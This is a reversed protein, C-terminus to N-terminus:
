KGGPRRRGFVVSSPQRELSSALNKLSRAAGNIEDLARALQDGLPSDAELVGNVSSLTTQAGTLTAQATELTARASDVTGKLSDALPGVRGGVDQVVQQVDGVLRRAESSTSQADAALANVQDLTKQATGLLPGIQGQVTRVLAQADAVAGRVSRLTDTIEPSRALQNVGDIAEVAHTALAEIPLKDLRDALRKAQEAFQELETPVTPMEPVSPDLGTLVVPTDPFFDLAVYLQGTVLSQSRLQARMGKAVLHQIAHQIDEQSALRPAGLGQREIRMLVGIRKQDYYLQIDSVTGVPVGRALVQAGKTLGAVSGDFFAVAVLPRRAFQFSGLLLLGAVALVVAGVVFAGIVTPNARKSM